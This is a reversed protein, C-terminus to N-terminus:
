SIRGFFKKEKTMQDYKPFPPPLGLVVGANTKVDADQFFIEKQKMYEFFFDLGM